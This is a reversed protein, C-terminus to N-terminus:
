NGFLRAFFGKKEKERTAAIPEKIEEVQQPILDEISQTFLTAYGNSINDIAELVKTPQYNLFREMLRRNNPHLFAFLFDIEMDNRLKAYAYNYEGYQISEVLTSKTLKRKYTNSLDEMEGKIANQSEIIFSEANSTDWFNRKQLCSELVKKIPYSSETLYAVNECLSNFYDRENSVRKRKTLLTEKISIQITNKDWPETITDFISSIEKDLM